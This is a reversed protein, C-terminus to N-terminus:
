SFVASLARQLADPDKRIRDELRRRAAKLIEAVESVTAYQHVIKNGAWWGNGNESPKERFFLSPRGEIFLDETEDATALTWGSFVLSTNGLIPSHRNNKSTPDCTFCVTRGIENNYYPSYEHNGNTCPRFLKAM